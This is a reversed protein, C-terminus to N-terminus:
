VVCCGRTLARSTQGSERAGLRRSVCVCVCVLRAAPLSLRTLMDQLLVRHLDSSPSLWLVKSSQQEAAPAFLDRKNLSRMAMQSKAGARKLNTHPFVVDGTCPYVIFMLMIITIITITIIIPITSYHFLPLLLIPLPPLLVVHSPCLCHPFSLSLTGLWESGLLSDCMARTLPAARDTSRVGDSAHWARWRSAGSAALLVAHRAHAPMHPYTCTHTAPLAVRLIRRRQPSLRASM